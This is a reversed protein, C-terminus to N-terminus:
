ALWGKNPLIPAISVPAPLRIARRRNEIAVMRFDDSRGNDEAIKGYVNEPRHVLIQNGTKGNPM